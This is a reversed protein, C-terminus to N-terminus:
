ALSKTEYYKRFTKSSYDGYTIGDSWRDGFKTDFTHTLKANEPAFMRYEPRVDFFIACSIRAVDKMRSAKVFHETASLAGGSMVELGEGIQISLSSPGHVAYPLGKIYLGSDDDHEIREGTNHDIYEDALLVTLYGSDVHESNWYETDCNPYYYLLRGKVDGIASVDHGTLECIHGKVDEIVPRLLSFLKMCNGKMQPIEDPWKSEEGDRFYFSGKFDDRTAGTQERGKSFGINYNSGKDELVELTPLQIMERINKYLSQRVENLGPVNSISIIGPGGPFFANRFDRLVWRSGKVKLQHHSTTM